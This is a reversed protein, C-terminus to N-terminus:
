SEAASVVIPDIDFYYGTCCCIELTELLDGTSSLIPVLWDDISEEVLEDVICVDLAKVRIHNDVLTSVILDMCGSVVLRLEQLSSAHKKLLHRVLKHSEDSVEVDVKILSNDALKKNLVQLIRDSYVRVAQLGHCHSLFVSLNSELETYKPLNKSHIYISRCFSTLDIGEM